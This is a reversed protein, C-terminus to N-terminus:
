GCQVREVDHVKRAGLTRNQRRHDEVSQYDEEQNRECQATHLGPGCGRSHEQAAIQEDIPQTTHEDREHADLQDVQQQDSDTEDSSERMSLSSRGAMTIKANSVIM